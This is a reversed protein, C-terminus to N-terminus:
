CDRTLMFICEQDQTLYPLKIQPVAAYGYVRLTQKQSICNTETLQIMKM